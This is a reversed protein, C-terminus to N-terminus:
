AHALVIGNEKFKKLITFMVDSHPGKRGETVDSIWFTLLFTYGNSTFDRLWCNPAPDKMCRPHEHASALLLAKVKEVDTDFTVTIPIDISALTTTLTWNVVRTSVLEENPILIERGDSTELLVYRINMQRVWGTNGSVEILDGIKVSREMLVTVGSVFNSTLKQLGLGIGVGLAGSFIAFATLDIGIASLTIIVAIVYILIRFFKVTLHRTTPSLRTSRRLYSELAASLLGAGWFVVVFIIFGHVLHLVSIHYQGADFAISELYDSTVRAVRAARLVATIIITSSILYAVIPQKVVMMVCKTLLYAFFLQAIGHTFDGGIGILTVFIQVGWLFLLALAPELLLLPKTLYEIDIFAPPAKVLRTQIKEKLHRALVLAALVAGVILAIEIYFHTSTLAALLDDWRSTLRHELHQSADGATPIIDPSIPLSMLPANTANTAM